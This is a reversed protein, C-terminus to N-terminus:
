YKVHGNWTSTLPTHIRITLQDTKSDVIDEVLCMMESLSSGGTISYIDLGNRVLDIVPSFRHGEIYSEIYDCTDELSKVANYDVVREGNGFAGHGCIVKVILGFLYGFRINFYKNASPTYFYAETMNIARTSITSDSTSYNTFFRFEQITETRTTYDVDTNDMSKWLIYDNMNDRPLLEIFADPSLFIGYYERGKDIVTIVDITKKIHIRYWIERLQDISLNM